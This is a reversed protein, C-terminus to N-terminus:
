KTETENTVGINLKATITPVRSLLPIMTKEYTSLKEQPTINVGYINLIVILVSTLLFMAVITVVCTGTNIIIEQTIEPISKRTIRQM